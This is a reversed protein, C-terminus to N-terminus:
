DYLGILHGTLIMTNFDATAEFTGEGSLYEYSGTGSIVTWEGELDFVGEVDTPSIDGEWSITLTGLGGEFIKLGKAEGSGDALNLELEFPQSVDGNDIFDGSMDFTGEGTGAMNLEDDDIDMYTVEIALNATVDLSPPETAYVAPLFVLLSVVLLSTLTLTKNM